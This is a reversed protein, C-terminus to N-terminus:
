QIILKMVKRHSETQVVVLYLGSELGSLNFHLRNTTQLTGQYLNKVKRGALDYLEVKGKSNSPLTLSLDVAKSYGVPNPYLRVDKNPLEATHDHIGLIFDPAKIRKTTYLRYEGPQLTIPDTVSTVDLSDGTFYEYWMGTKQFNPTINGANVDFNGLITVDMSTDNLHIAKLLGGVNMTYDTTNFVAYEKRLNILSSWVYYLHQRNADYWYDWRIPKPDVRCGNSITGNSCYNISYDYGLEGFMWIMKPGPVTFFFAGAAEMRKLATPIDKVNYSGSSNGGTENKYMLREEDHSEMYSVMSASNSFGFTKYSIGSLDISSSWGMTNQGYNYNMNNWVSMGYNTLVQEESNATFLELIDYANPHFEKIHNYIHELHSIRSADYAYGDGPTNTFGKAFDFRFGDIKYETLWYNTVSDVLKITQPSDYNFDNGWSYTTNPSTQNFWPNNAAPRNNTADWYMMAFPCSNYAHNLVIDMIVAIGNAHCSDIFAKYTDRPGYSKDVAFYYNPNYGWSINGEFENVPMLEIANVGLRKLYGLTDILGQFDGQQTFDHVWLEYIVLNERKPPTFNNVKWNYPTQATQLVSAIGTTKGTPYAVLNPYTASSIYQDNWPDSVQETYPDGIRIGGNILYQFVYQKQPTLGTITIWYRNSDPTEKMQYKESLQWNNFDGIAFVYQKDPAYLCLTVTTDNIYNIGDKIGSPLAEVTTPSMVYYYSSDYVTKSASDAKAVITHKGYATATETYTFSSGTDAKILQNDLYLFTSDASTSNWVIEVADNKSVINTSSKPPSTIQVNLGPQYVQHFIDTGGVDRGTVSRTSNGFVFNMSDIKIGDPVGYFARISPKIKLQWLNTGVKTLQCDAPNDTWSSNKIYQWHKYVGSSDINVGTYAYVDTGSYDMLGQDGQAANFTITVSDDATPFAPVTTIVQAQLSFGIFSLFIILIFNRIM